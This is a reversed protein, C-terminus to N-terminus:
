GNTKGSKPSKGKKSKKSSSSASKDSKAPSDKTTDQGVAANVIPNAAAASTILIGKKPLSKTRVLQELNLEDPKLNEDSKHKKSLPSSDEIRFEKRPLKESEVKLPVLVTSAAKDNEEEVRDILSSRKIRDFSNHFESRVRMVPSSGNIPSTVASNGLSQQQPVAGDPPHSQFDDDHVKKQKELSRRKLKISSRATANGNSPKPRRIVIATDPAGKSQTEASLVTAAASSRELSLSSEKKLDTLSKDFNEILHDFESHEVLPEREMDKQSVNDSFRKRVNPSEMRNFVKDISGSFSGGRRMELTQFISNSINSLNSRLSGSSVKRDSLLSEDLKSDFVLSDTDPDIVASGFGVTESFYNNSTDFDEHLFQFLEKQECNLLEDRLNFQQQQQQGDDQDTSLTNISHDSPARKMSKVYSPSRRFSSNPAFSSKRRPCSRLGDGSLTRGAPSALLALGKQKQAHMREDEGSSSAATPGVVSYSSSYYPNARTYRDSHVVEDHTSLAGISHVSPPSRIIAIPSMVDSTTPSRIRRDYYSINDNDSNNNNNNTNINASSHNNNDDDPCMDSDLILGPDTDTSNIPGLARLEISETLTAEEASSVLGIVIAEVVDRGSM